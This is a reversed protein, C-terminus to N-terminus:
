LDGVMIICIDFTGETCYRGGGLKGETLNTQIRSRSWGFTVLWVAQKMFGATQTVFWVAQQMFGNSDVM